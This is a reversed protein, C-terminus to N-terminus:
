EGQWRGINEKELESKLKKEQLRDRLFLTWGVRRYKGAKRIEFPNRAWDSHLIASRVGSSFNGSSKLKVSMSRLVHLRTTGIFVRTIPMGLVPVM